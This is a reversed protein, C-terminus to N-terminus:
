NPDKAMFDCPQPHGLQFKILDAGAMAAERIMAFALSKIGKHNSGIEACFIM